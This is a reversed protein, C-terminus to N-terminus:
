DPNNGPIRRFFSYGAVDRIRSYGRQSLAQGLQGSIPETTVILGVSYNDLSNLLVERDKPPFEKGSVLERLERRTHAEEPPLHAGMEEDYVERVSVLPVRHVFTPIWVAVKDPALVSSKPPTAAIAERAVGYDPAVVKLPTLSYSELKSHALSTYPALYVVGALLPVVAITVGRKGYREAVTRLGGVIAVAVIGAVPACWLVRWVADRTTFKSLLEFTFPNLCVLFYTFVLILLQRRLRGNRQVFPATLLALLFVIETRAGFVMTIALHVKAPLDAFASEMVGMRHAISLGCAVAYLAPMLTLAARRSIGKHWGSLTALTLAIPLIFIASSSLGVCAVATAALILWQSLLGCQEFEWAYSYLLPVGISVLVSKGVFLGSFAFYGFGRSGASILLAILAVVTAAVWCGPALIRMLRAWAIPVLVAIATPVFAHAILIPEMGLLRALFGVLLEYSEVAYSPLMLPFKQGGYLVDHSLVPLEPHAVADAATGVYVADDINPRHSLYTIGSAMIIVALLLARRQSTLPRPKEASISYTRTQKMLALSLLVVSTIWFASYKLGVARAIVLTAAFAIWIWSSRQSEISSIASQSSSSPRTARAAFVGCTVGGLLALPGIHVLTEFSLGLLVCLHCALTWFAFGFVACIIILVWGFPLDNQSAGTATKQGKQKVNHLDLIIARQVPKSCNHFAFGALVENQLSNYRPAHRDNISIAAACQWGGSFL